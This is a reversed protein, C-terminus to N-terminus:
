RAKIEAIWLLLPRTPSGQGAPMFVRFRNTKVPAFRVTSIPRPKEGEPPSAYVARWSEGAPVQIQFQRPTHVEHTYAAWYITVERILTPQPFIIEVWHDTPLEASAWTVDNGCSDGTLATFGDNLPLLSEYGPFCSDVKVTAGRAALAVNDSEVYQFRVMARGENYQPSNDKVSFLIEHPGYEVLTARLPVIFRIQKPSPQSIFLPSPWPKGDLKVQWSRPLLANQAEAFAVLLRKPLQSINGLDVRPAARLAKDDAKVGILRPGTEDNLVLGAPPNILLKIESSQEQAPDLRFILRGAQSEYAAPRWPSAGARIYVRPSIQSVFPLSVNFAGTSFAEYMEARGAYAGLPLAVIFALIRM